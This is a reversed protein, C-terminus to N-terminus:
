RCWQKKKKKKKKKKIYESNEHLASTNTDAGVTTALGCGAGGSHVSVERPFVPKYSYVHHLLMVHPM